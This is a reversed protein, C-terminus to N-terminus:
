RAVRFVRAGRIVLPKDDPGKIFPAVWLQRPGDKMHYTHWHASVIWRQQWDVHHHDDGPQGKPRRLTIVTITKEAYQLRATGRRTARSPRRQMGVAVRQGLLRWLAQLFRLLENTASAMAPLDKEDKGLARLEKIRDAMQQEPDYGFHLPTDYNLCMGASFTDHVARIEEASMGDPLMHGDDIVDQGTSWTSVWLGSAKGDSTMAKSWAVARHGIQNGRWDKIRVPRPLYVFGNPIFLDEERLPEDQFSPWSAELVDMMESTVYVPEANWLTSLVAHSLWAPTQRQDPETIDRSHSYSALYEKGRDTLYLAWTASQKHLAVEWDAM